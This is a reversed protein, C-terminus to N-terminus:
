LSLYLSSNGQKSGFIEEWARDQKQLKSKERIGRDRKKVRWM